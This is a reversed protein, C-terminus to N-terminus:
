FFLFLLGESEFVMVSVEKTQVTDQCKLGMDVRCTAAVPCKGNSVTLGLTSGPVSARQGRLM